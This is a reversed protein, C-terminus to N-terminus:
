ESFVRVVARLSDTRAALEAAQDRLTESTATSSRTASFVDGLLTAAERCSSRQVELSARV